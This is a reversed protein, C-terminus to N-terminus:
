IIFNICRGKVFIVKKPATLDYKQMTENDKLMAIIDDQTAENPVRVITKMKGLVQVVIEYDNEVLKSEDVKPWNSLSISTNNGLRNWLEETIFPCVPNLLQLLGQAYAKPLTNQKEAANLFIMMQSIATNYAMKEFDETVKKVTENYIKDLAPNEKDVIKGSETYLHWIRDLFKRMAVVGKDDWPKTATIPGMFMEFLRLSDAGYERVVDDPNVVNGRSKSMKEGNSGLIMGPHLLRKFPEKVPVLGKDFLYNNWFRSYLLHGVAHESGGVYLDVPLWHKMLEYNAFEKDNQNDIYRLFYWSSGAAGPMTNLERTGWQGNINVRKWDDSANDLPAKGNKGKYDPLTPLDLPLNDESLLIIEGNDMNVIPVPEGWYRQRAFIWERLRYTTAKKGLGRESLWDTIKDIADTKNLGNLFGSNIHVGDGTYAKESIDGGDIVQIIDINFKKAFDYDRDDHAPVAMIAGTGYSALVYDSIYIPIQKDNVPNIAYAGIFVGTKDKALDTRELDSKKACERIYADVEAKKDATTIKEVLAHEPAMVCYTAGFLTDARTTFVTFKENTGAVKFDVYAGNSKGIWNRQMEKTSEPWDIEDLGALLKEAYAPINMVLQRMNKKVVPFGGRESKGDIVEDNSLVTGLEECWNVPMDKYYAYGDKYLQMFIWQTWRYFDSECTSLTKDWDYDFGLMKLQRTFNAVNNRTFTGPHNGTNIAYQESPLGFSDFGMPHLVNYGQMRKMRSLIDTATYGEPHGVHLGQGSPYPFMDLVYYKPRSFDTIDTKFTHNDEWYKAWKAEIEKHNYM